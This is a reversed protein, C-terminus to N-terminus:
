RKSHWSGPVTHPRILTQINKYTHIYARIQTNRHTLKTNPNTHARARVCESARQRSTNMVSTHLIHTQTRTDTDTHRHGHTQTHPQTSIYWCIYKYMCLYMCAYMQLAATRRPRADPPSCRSASLARCAWWWPATHAQSHRTPCNFNYTHINTCKHITKIYTANTRRHPHLTVSAYSSTAINSFIRSEKKKTCAWVSPCRTSM